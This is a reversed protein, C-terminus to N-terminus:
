NKTETMRIKLDWDYNRGWCEAEIKVKNTTAKNFMAALKMCKEVDESIPSRAPLDVLRVHDNGESLLQKIREFEKNLLTQRNHKIKKFVDDM